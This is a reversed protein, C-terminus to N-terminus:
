RRVEATRQLPHPSHAPEDPQGTLGATVGAAIALAIGLQLPAQLALLAITAAAV